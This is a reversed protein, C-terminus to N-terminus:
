MFEPRTMAPLGGGAPLTPKASSKADAIKSNGKTEPNKTEGTTPDIYEQITTHVLQKLDGAVVGM